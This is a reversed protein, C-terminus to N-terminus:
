YLDHHLNEKNPLWKGVACTEEVLIRKLFITSISIPRLEGYFAFADM